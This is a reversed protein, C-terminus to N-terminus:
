NCDGCCECCECCECGGECCECCACATLCCGRGRPPPGEQGIYEPGPPMWQPGGQQGPFGGPQGPFGGQQPWGGPQQPFGGPGGPQQPWQGPWQGPQQGPQQPFGGPQQPWQGPQPGGPGGPGGPHEGHDLTRHVARRLEDRLLRHVLRGDTFEVEALALEIGLVADTCLRRAEAVETNTATLPNWAGAAADAALDEVADLLHAVRGFLRGIETLPAQNAPRGALVATYGFAAATATETPETADLLTAAAAEVSAQRDVADLLVATDFGLDAGVVAGRKTWRGALRRAAVRLGARGALGDRDDVHDRVKAAALVLSVTAALRVCDGTAVPAGRLGRLACPGAARRGATSIATSQAEVLASVVLGDYNTALRAAHGHDDRLSLCVGCLHARWAAGLEEGLRHRCPRIIGFMPSM